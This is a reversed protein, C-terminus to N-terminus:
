LVNFVVSLRRAPELEVKIKGKKLAKAFGKIKCFQDAM